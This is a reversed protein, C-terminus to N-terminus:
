IPFGNETATPSVVRRPGNGINVVSIVHAPTQTTKTNPTERQSIIPPSFQIRTRVKSEQNRKEADAPCFFLSGTQAHPDRHTQTNTPRDSPLDSSTPVCSLFSEGENMPPIMECMGDTQRGLHQHQSEGKEQKPDRGGIYLGAGGSRHACVVRWSKQSLGDM